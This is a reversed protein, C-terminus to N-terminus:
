KSILLLANPRQLDGGKIFTRLFSGTEDYSNVAGTQWDAVLYTGEDGVIFGETNRLGSIFTSKFTGEGDFRKISGAQWDQVMFDGSQDIWINVPGSLSKNIFVGLSKGESDYKLVQRQNFSVVYLNEQSDFVLGMGRTFPTDTFESIFAGTTADFCAINNKDQDDAGWQSVFLKNNHFVIKTPFSLDFGSTFAEMFEGTTINFKLVSSNGLGTVYLQGDPGVAIDQPNSLESERDVILDKIFQGTAGDYMKVSSEFNEPTSGGNVFHSVLINHNKFESEILGAPADDSSSCSLLALFFIVLACTLEKM